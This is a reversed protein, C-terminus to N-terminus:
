PLSFGTKVLEVVEAEEPLFLTMRDGTLQLVQAHWQVGFGGQNQITISMFSPLFAYRRGEPLFVANTSAMKNYMSLTSDAFFVVYFPTAIADMLRHVELVSDRQQWERFARNERRNYEEYASHGYWQEARKQRVHEYVKLAQPLAPAKKDVQVGQESYAAVEWRGLLKQVLPDLPKQGLAAVPLLAAALLFNYRILLPIPM